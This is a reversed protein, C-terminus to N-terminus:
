QPNVTALLPKEYRSQVTMVHVKVQCRATHTLTLTRSDIPQALPPGDLQPPPRTPEARSGDSALPSRLVAGRKLMLEM